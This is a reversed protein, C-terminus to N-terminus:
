FRKHFAQWDKIFCLVSLWIVGFFLILYLWRYLDPLLRSFHYALGSNAHNLSELINSLYQGFLTVLVLGIALMWLSRSRWALVMAVRNFFERM